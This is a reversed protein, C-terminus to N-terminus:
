YYYKKKFYIYNCSTNLTISSNNVSVLAYKSEDELNFINTNSDFKLIYNLSTSTLNAVIPTDNDYNLCLTMMSYDNSDVGLKGISQNSCISKPKSSSTCLINDDSLQCTYVTTEDIYYGLTTIATCKSKTTECYYLFGEKGSTQLIETETDKIIYYTDADGLNKKIFLINQIFYFIFISFFFLHIFILYKKM